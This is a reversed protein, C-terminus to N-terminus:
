SGTVVATALSMAWFMGILQGHMIGVLSILACVTLFFSVLSRQQIKLSLFGIFFKASSQTKEEGLLSYTPIPKSAFGRVLDWLDRGLENLGALCILVM